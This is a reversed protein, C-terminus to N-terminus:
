KKDEKKMMHKKNHFCEPCIIEDHYNLCYWSSFGEADSCLQGCFECLLILDSIM